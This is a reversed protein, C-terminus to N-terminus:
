AGMRVKKEIGEIVRYQKRKGSDEHEILYGQRCQSSLILRLSTITIFQTSINFQICGSALLDNATFPKDGYNERWRIYAEKLAPRRYGKSRGM